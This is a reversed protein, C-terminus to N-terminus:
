LTGYTRRERGDSGTLRGVYVPAGVGSVGERWRGRLRILNSRVLTRLADVADGEFGAEACLDRLDGPELRLAADGASQAEALRERLVALIRQAEEPGVGAPAHEVRNEM